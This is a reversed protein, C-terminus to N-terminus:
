NKKNIIFTRVSNYHYFLLVECNLERKNIKMIFKEGGGGPWQHGKNVCGGGGLSSCSKTPNKKGSQWGLNTQDAIAVGLTSQTDM